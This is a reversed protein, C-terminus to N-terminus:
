GNCKYIFKLLELPLHKGDAIIEVYIDDFYLGAEVAGALRYSNKRTVGKMGSYLHTMLTYGNDKAKEIESFEADTHAVSMVFGKEKGVKGFEMGGEMEPAAGLRMVFPYKEKLGDLETALPKKMYEVNQAGCQSANLWPGEMHVGILTGNPCKEKYKAFTNLAYETEDESATLTTALMTTTGHALHFNAINSIEEETADMFELGNGGHCHIDIFGPVLYSGKADIVKDASIEETGVYTIVGNEYACVGNEIIESSTVIKANRILTIM